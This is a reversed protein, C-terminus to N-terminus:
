NSDEKAVDKGYIDEVEDEFAGADFIQGRILSTKKNEYAKLPTDFLSFKKDFFSKVCHQDNNGISINLAKIINQYKSQLLASRKRYGDAM